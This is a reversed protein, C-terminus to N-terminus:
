AFFCVGQCRRTGKMYPQNYVGPYYSLPGTPSSGILEAM